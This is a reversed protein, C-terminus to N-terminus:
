HVIPATTLAPTRRAGAATTNSFCCCGPIRTLISISLCRRERRDDQEFAFDVDSQGPDQVSMSRILQDELREGTLRVMHNRASCMRESALAIQVEGVERILRPDKRRGAAKEPIPDIGHKNM